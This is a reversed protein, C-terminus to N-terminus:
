LKALEAELEGPAVEELEYRARALPHRVSLSRRLDAEPVIPIGDRYRPGAVATPYRRGSIGPIQTATFAVVEAAPADRYVVNFNHFDRGAAGLIVIRRPMPNGQPGAVTRAEATAWLM